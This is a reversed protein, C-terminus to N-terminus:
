KIVVNVVTHVFSHIKLMDIQTANAIPDYAHDKVCQSGNMNQAM